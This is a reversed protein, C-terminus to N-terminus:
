GWSALEASYEEMEGWKFVERSQHSEGLPSEILLLTRSSRMHDEAIKIAHEVSEYVGIIEHGFEGIVRSGPEEDMTILTYVNM